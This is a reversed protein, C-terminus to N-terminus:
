NPIQKEDIVLRMPPRSLTGLIGLCGELHKFWTDLQRLCVNMGDFSEMLM